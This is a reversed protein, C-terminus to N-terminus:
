LPKRRTVEEEDQEIQSSAPDRDSIVMEVRDSFGACESGGRM